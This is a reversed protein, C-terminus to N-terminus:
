KRKIIIVFVVGLVSVLAAAAAAKTILAKDVPNEEGNDTDVPSSFEITGCKSCSRFSGGTSDIVEWASFEHQCEGNETGNGQDDSAPPTVTGSEGDGAPPTVTGGEDDGAPPAIVDSKAYFNCVFGNYSTLCPGVTTYTKDNRTGFWYDGDNVVAILTKSETDYTYVTSAVTEYAGNVHTGSVIMNIYAKTTGNYTYLYYGGTTKELYVDIGAESNDTTAMYYGDMGGALYFVTNNLNEQVMAFKYATGAVPADVVTYEGTTTPPVYDPDTAGCECKGEVFNHVHAPPTIEGKAYFQCYFGNYSIACPGVTEYNKDNRTGFWYDADNVVAIITKSETDYTYVTSATEEYAGNVHTGSVVMNIYQKTTGDTTYLYYGGTTEELYVDIGADGNDTTAMYYSDMGGALYLVKNDLNEQVMAFKYATGAVPADVVAYEDTTTTDDQDDDAPPTTGGQDGGSPPTTGQSGASPTTMNEPIDEGFLVFSLEPYDVFVNRTGTISEVSDNRGLEWTDVPDEEIWELLVDISEIVGDTGTIENPNYKSGTNTCGWRVYTYLVIRAVDGRLDYKGGSESNPNYYGSSEGYAKNGRSSNESTATPRLMMIDNEGNGSADGKSDPWTHERNWTSGGDWDPGILKGSYFSSIKGGGNECDTYKFLDRTANYTTVNHHANKMLTQLAKYLASSPVSSINTSGSLIVLEEYTTDKYFDEASESLSTAVVGRQGWNYVYEDAAYATIGVAFVSSVCVILVLLLALGRKMLNSM